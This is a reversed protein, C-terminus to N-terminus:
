FSKKSNPLIYKNSLAREVTFFSHQNDKQTNSIKNNTLSVYPIDLPYFAGNKVCAIRQKESFLVNSFCSPVNTHYIPFTDYAFNLFPLKSMSSVGGNSSRRFKVFVMEFCKQLLFTALCTMFQSFFYVKILFRNEIM